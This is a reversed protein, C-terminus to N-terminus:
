YPLDHHLATTGDELTRPEFDSFVEPFHCQLVWGIQVALRRIEKDAFRTGRMHLFWRWARLNGTVVIRTEAANPLVSRAAQRAQKRRLTADPSGAPRQELAALLERYATAAAETAAVFREHLVPDAAIVDPEVVEGAGMAVYRQSLQSFSLHRHRVLEHTLSRSVGTVYFSATGHELVSLHGVDLIHCLYTANTATAPNPKSWSQYCARGAFEALAQGGDADTDWPVDVPPEFHTWAVPVVRLQAPEPVAPQVEEVSDVAADVGAEGNLVAPRASDSQKSVRAVPVPLAPRVLMVGLLRQPPATLSTMIVDHMQVVVYPLYMVLEARRRSETVLAGLLDGAREGGPGGRRHPERDHVREAGRGVLDGGRQQVGGARRRDRHPQVAVVDPDLHAGRSGLGGGGSRVVAVRAGPDRQAQGLRELGLDLLGRAAVADRH